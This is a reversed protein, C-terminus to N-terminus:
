IWTNSKRRLNYNLFSDTFNRTNSKIDWIDIDEGSANWNHSDEPAKFAIVEPNLEVSRNSLNFAMSVKELTQYNIM